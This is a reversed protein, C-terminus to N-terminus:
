CGSADDRVFTPKVEGVTVGRSLFHARFLKSRRHAGGLCSPLAKAQDRPAMLRSLADAITNRETPVHAVRYHWEQRVKRWAIEQAVKLMAGRGVLNLAGTLAGINDGFYMRLQERPSSWVFM